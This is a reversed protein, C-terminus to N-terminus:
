AKPYLGSSGRWMLLQSTPRPRPFESLEHWAENGYTSPPTHAEHRDRWQRAQELVYEYMANSFRFQRSIIRGASRCIVRLTNPSVLYICRDIRKRM